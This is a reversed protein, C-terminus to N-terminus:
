SGSPCVGDEFLRGSMVALYHARESVPVEDVAVSAQSASAGALGDSVTVPARLDSARQFQQGPEVLLADLQRVETLSVELAPQVAPRRVPFVDPGEDEPGVLSTEGRVEGNRDPERFIRGGEQLVIVANLLKPAADVVVREGEVDADDAAEDKEHSQLYRADEYQGGVVDGNM